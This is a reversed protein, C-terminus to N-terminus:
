QLRSLANQVAETLPTTSRGILMSLQRSSDFLDGKSASTDWGAIATAYGEPIGFSKLITAYETEPLNRYPVNKDTQKSIEAALDNLTYAEDGALEYIMGEHNKGTLVAVAAEAFDTRAASSILGEGASGLFAGGAIAGALSGLYNETYWGNRLLTFPIGSEKLAAETALHEGALSLSSTDAHLLSTYVIWKVGAKKAAQIVHVHQNFRQGIENSSILLLSDIGQLANVLDEPKSYDFERVEVGLDVAKQPSRVLAVINGDSTKEKLKDVVIRGLQSTAGTVGIKM